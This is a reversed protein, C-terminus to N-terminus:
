NRLKGDHPADNAHAKESKLDNGRTHTKQMGTKEIAEPTGGKKIERGGVRRAARPSGSASQKM